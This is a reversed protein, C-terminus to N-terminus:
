LYIYARRKVPKSRVNLQHLRELKLDICLQSSFAVASLPVIHKKHHISFHRSKFRFIGNFVNQWGCLTCLFCFQFSCRWSFAEGNKQVSRVRIEFHVCCNLVFYFLIFVSRIFFHFFLKELIRVSPKETVNACWILFQLLLIYINYIKHKIIFHFALLINYIFVIIFFNELQHNTTTPPKKTTRTHTPAHLPHKVFSFLTWHVSAISVLFEIAMAAFKTAFTLQNINTKQNKHTHIHM